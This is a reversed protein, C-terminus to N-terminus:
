RLNAFILTGKETNKTLKAAGIDSKATGRYRSAPGIVKECHLTDHGRRYEATAMNERRNVHGRRLVLTPM